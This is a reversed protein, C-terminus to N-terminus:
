GNSTEKKTKTMAESQMLLYEDPCITIVEAYLQNGLARRGLFRGVMVPDTHGTDQHLGTMSLVRWVFRRGSATAMVGKLDDNATQDKAKKKITQAKVHTEDSSNYPVEIPDSM